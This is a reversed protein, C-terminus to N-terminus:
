VEMGGSEGLEGLDSSIQLPLVGYISARAAERERAIKLKAEAHVFGM